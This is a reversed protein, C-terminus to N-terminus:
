LEGKSDKVQANKHVEPDNKENQFCRGLVLSLHFIM